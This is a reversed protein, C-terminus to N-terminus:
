KEPQALLRVPGLMGSPTPVILHTDQPVFRQGYRASLLRYDLREQGALANLSLNAVKVEIKNVGARLRSTIDLEYPPHWVSGARQGNVYVEAAERIPSDLMARMGAPVKPTTELPTGKGFDLRIAAGSLQSASLEVDKSYVAVGSFFRRSPDDTWSRLQNMSQPQAGPFRVQWDRSLDALVVSPKRSAMTAAADGDSLVLVRSEYPALDLELAPTVKAASTTGDHPNWWSASKRTARLKATTRVPRNSTNAIFYIDGDALKRRVFGVDASQSALKLDPTVAKALAAGVAADDAVLTVGSATEM